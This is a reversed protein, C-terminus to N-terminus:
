AELLTAEGSVTVSTDVGALTLSIPLEFAAGLTLKLARVADNFGPTRVVIEYRGVRLYPFRFRGEQDTVSELTANTEIQRAAVHAGPVVAGQPDTVRGSVSAFNITEQAAARGASAAAPSASALASVIALWAAPLCIGRM